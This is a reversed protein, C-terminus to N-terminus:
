LGMSFRRGPVAADAAETGDLDALTMKNLAATALAREDREGARAADLIGQLLVARATESDRTIDLPLADLARDYARALVDLVGPGYGPM